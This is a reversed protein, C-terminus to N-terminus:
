HSNQCIHTGKSCTNHYSMDPIKGAGSSLLSGGYLDLALFAYSQGFVLIICGILTVTKLLHQLVSTVLVLTDQFLSFEKELNLFSIVCFQWMM